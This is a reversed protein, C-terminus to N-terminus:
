TVPGEYMSRSVHANGMQAGVNVLALVVASLALNALAVNGAPAEIIRLYCDHRCNNNGKFDVIKDKDSVFAHLIM